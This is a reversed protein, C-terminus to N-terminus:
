FLGGVDPDGNQLRKRAIKEEGLPLVGRYTLRHIPCPGHIKLAELHSERWYGKNERFGYEPYKLDEEDMIRDRTVKALISAAAISLSLADGKIVAEMKVNLKPLTKGDVLACNAKVTLKSFAEEMARMTACLPNLTDVEHASKIAVAYALAHEKIWIFCAERKEPDLKKSDRIPVPPILQPDLIVAGVVLPGALPGRGAEDLGALPRVGFSEDFALLAQVSTKFYPMQSTENCFLGGQAAKESTKPFLGASSSPVNKHSM